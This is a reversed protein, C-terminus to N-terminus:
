NEILVYKVNMTYVGPQAYNPAVLAQSVGANTAAKPFVAPLGPVIRYDITYWYDSGAGTLPATTTLYSGGGVFDATGTGGAIYKEAVAPRVYPTASVYINNQGIPATLFPSSYDAFATAGANLPNARDQRLELATCPITTVANPDGSNGYEVQVDMNTGQSSYGVAYLDWSVSASVRLQTVGYKTIGGAYSAVNDFVFDINQPGSMELQLIPQLDMTVTVNQEDVLQAKSLGAPMLLVVMALTAKLNKM